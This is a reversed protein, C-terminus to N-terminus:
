MTTSNTGLACFSLFDSRSMQFLPTKTYWHTAAAIKEGPFGALPSFYLRYICAVLHYLVTGAVVVVAIETTSQPVIMSSILM